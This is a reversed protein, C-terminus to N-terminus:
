NLDYPLNSLYFSKRTTLSENLSMEMLAAHRRRSGIM